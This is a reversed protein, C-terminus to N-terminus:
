TYKLANTHAHTVPIFFLFFFSLVNIVVRLSSLTIYIATIINYKEATRGPSSHPRCVASYQQRQVFIREVRRRASHVRLPNLRLAGPSSWAVSIKIIYYNFRTRVCFPRRAAPFDPRFRKNHFTIYVRVGAGPKPHTRCKIRRRKQACRCHCVYWLAFSVNERYRQVVRTLAATGDYQQKWWRVVRDTVKTVRLRAPSVRNVTSVVSSKLRFFIRARICM